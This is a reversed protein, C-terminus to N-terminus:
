TDDKLLTSLAVTGTPLPAQCVLMSDPLTADLCTWYFVVADVAQTGELVVVGQPLWLAGIRMRGDSPHIAEDVVRRNVFQHSWTGASDM